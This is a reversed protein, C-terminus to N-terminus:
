FFIYFHMSRGKMELIILVIISINLALVVWDLIGIQDTITLIANVIIFLLLSIYIFLFKKNILYAFIGFCLGNLIMLALIIWHQLAYIQIKTFYIIGLIVWLLCSVALLIRLIKAM